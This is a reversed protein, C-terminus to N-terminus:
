RKAQQKGMEKGAAKKKKAVAFSPRSSDESAEFLDEDEGKKATLPETEATRKKTPSKVEKAVTSTSSSSGVNGIKGDSGNNGALPQMASSSSSGGAGLQGALGLAGAATM